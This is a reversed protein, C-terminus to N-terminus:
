VKRVKAMFFGETENSPLIRVTKKLKDPYLKAGFSTMGTKWWAKESLGIDIDQLELDKNEELIRAM